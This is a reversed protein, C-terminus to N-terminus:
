PISSTTTSSLAWQRGGVNVLYAQIEGGSKAVTLITPTCRRILSAQRRATAPSRKQLANQVEIADRWENDDVGRLLLDAIIRSEPVKLSGGAIDARYKYKSETM